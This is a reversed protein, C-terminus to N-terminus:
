GQGTQEHSEPQCQDADIGQQCNGKFTIDLRQNDHKAYRETDNTGYDPMKQHPIRQGDHAKEPNHGQGAYDHVIRQNKNIKGVAPAAFAGLRCIGDPIGPDLPETRDKQCGQRSEAPQCGHYQFCGPLRPKQNGHGNGQSESAGMISSVDRCALNRIGMAMERPNPM